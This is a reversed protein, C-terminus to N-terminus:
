FRADGGKGCQRLSLLPQQDKASATLNEMKAGEPMLSLACVRGIRRLGVPSPPQFPKNFTTQFHAVIGATWHAAQQPTHM